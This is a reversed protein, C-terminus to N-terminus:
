NSHNPVKIYQGNMTRFIRGNPELTTALIGFHHPGFQVQLATTNENAAFPNNITIFDFRILFLRSTSQEKNSQNFIETSTRKRVNLPQLLILHATTICSHHTM